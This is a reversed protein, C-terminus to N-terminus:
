SFIKYEAYEAILHGIFIHAEQIRPTIKSPVQIIYDTYEELDEPDYRM